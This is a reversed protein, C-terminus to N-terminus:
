KVRSSCSLLPCITEINGLCGEHYFHSCNFNKYNDGRPNSQSGPVIPYSCAFCSICKVEDFIIPSRTSLTFCAQRVIPKNNNTCYIMFHWCLENLNFSVRRDTPELSELYIKSGINYLQDNILRAWKDGLFSTESKKVFNVFVFQERFYEYVIEHQNDDFLPLTPVSM